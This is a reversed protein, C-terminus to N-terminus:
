AGGGDLSQPSTYVSNAVGGDIHFSGGIAKGDVYLKTAADQDATPTALDIIKNNEMDLVNIVKM